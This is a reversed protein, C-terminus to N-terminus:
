HPPSTGGAISTGAPEIWHKAAECIRRSFGMLVQRIEEFRDTPTVTTEYLYLSRKMEIQVTHYGRAPDGYQRVITGGKYPDNVQVSLGMGRLTDVVLATFAPAASRGDLDGVVFDPRAAGEGDAATSKKAALIDAPAYDKAIIRFTGPIVLEADNREFAGSPIVYTLAATAIIILLMM